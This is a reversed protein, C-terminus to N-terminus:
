PIWKKGVEDGNDRIVNDRQVIVSLVCKRNKSGTFWIGIGLRLTPNICDTPTPTHTHTHTHRDNLYYAALSPGSCGSPM